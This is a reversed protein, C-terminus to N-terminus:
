LLMPVCLPDVYDRSLIRASFRPSPARNRLEAVGPPSCMVEALSHEDTSIFYAIGAKGTSFMTRLYLRFNHIVPHFLPTGQTNTLSV